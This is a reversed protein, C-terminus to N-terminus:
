RAGSVAEAKKRALCLLSVGFPMSGFRTICRREADMLSIVSNNIWSPPINLESVPTEPDIKKDKSAADVRASVWAPLFSISNFYTATKIEFGLNELIRSFFELRYRTKGMVQRDHRRTLCRFAPECLILVGGPKLLGSIQSLVAAEDAVWQHYLVTFLAALDFSGKGFLQAIHNADGLVLDAAGGRRAALELALSSRDVGVLRRCHKQLMDFNAGTGCGVDVGRELPSPIMSKLLADVLRRRSIYWWHKDEIAVLQRYAGSDM